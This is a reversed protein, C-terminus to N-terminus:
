GLFSSLRGRVIRLDRDHDRDIKNKKLPFESQEIEVLSSGNRPILEAKRREYIKGQGGRTMVTATIKDDLYPVPKSHRCEQFEM